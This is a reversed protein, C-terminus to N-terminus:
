GHIKIRIQVCVCVHQRMKFQKAIFDNVVVFIAPDTDVHLKCMRGLDAYTKELGSLEM